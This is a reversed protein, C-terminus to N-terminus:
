PIKNTIKTIPMRLLLRSSYIVFSGDSSQNNIGLVGIKLAKHGNGVSLRM